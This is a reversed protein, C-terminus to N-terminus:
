ESTAVATVPEDAPQSDNSEAETPKKAFDGLSLGSKVFYGLGIVTVPLWQAMHYFISAAFVDAKRDALEPQTQLVVWFTAQIVGFYGPTSPITVALAIAGLLVFSMAASIQIDFAYLAIWALLGNLIWKAFSTSIVAALLGPSRIAKLGAAGSEALALVKEEFAEPLPLIRFAWRVLALVQQTFFVYLAAGVVGAATVGAVLLGLQKITPDLGEVLVLGVGLLSLIAILDFLRELAVTSLVSSFPVKSQKWFVGVRVLEGLHAPVVNNVGFGIMMSPVLQSTPFNGLPALLLRWRFAKLWYFLALIVLFVPLLRYDATRFATALQKWEEPEKPAAFYLFGLTVPVGIALLKWNLWPRKQEANDTDDSM